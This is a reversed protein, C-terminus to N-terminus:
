VVRIFMWMYVRLLEFLCDWLLGLGARLFDQRGVIHRADCLSLTSFLLLLISLTISLSPPLDM